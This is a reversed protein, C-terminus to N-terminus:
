LHSTKDETNINFILVLTFINVNRVWLAMEPADESSKLSTSLDGCERVCENIM